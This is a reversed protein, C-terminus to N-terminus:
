RVLSKITHICDNVKTKMRQWFPLPTFETEGARKVKIGISAKKKIKATTTM